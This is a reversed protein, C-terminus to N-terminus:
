DPIRRQVVPEFLMRASRFLNMATPKSMVQMRPVTIQIDAWLRELPAADASRHADDWLALRM